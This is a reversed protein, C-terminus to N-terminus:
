QLNEMREHDHSDDGCREDLADAQGCSSAYIQFIENEADRMNVYSINEKRCRINVFIRLQDIKKNLDELKGHPMMMRDVM